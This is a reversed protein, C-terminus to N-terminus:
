RVTNLRQESTVEEFSSERIVRDLVSFKLKEEDCVEGGSINNMRKGMLIYTDYPCSNQRKNPLIGLAKFLTMCM